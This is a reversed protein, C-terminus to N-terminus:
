GGLLFAGIDPSREVVQAPGILVQLEVDAHEFLFHDLQAVMQPRHFPGHAQERRCTAPARRGCV